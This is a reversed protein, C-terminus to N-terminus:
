GNLSNAQRGGGSVPPRVESGVPFNVGISGPETAISDKKPPISRLAFEFKSGARGDEAPEAPLSSNRGGDGINSSDRDEPFDFSERTEVLEKDAEVREGPIEQLCAPRGVADLIGEIRRLCCFMRHLSLFGTGAIYTMYLMVFIPFQGTITAIVTQMSSGASTLNLQSASAVTDFVKQAGLFGYVTLAHEAASLVFGIGCAGALGHGYPSLQLNAGEGAVDSSYGRLEM